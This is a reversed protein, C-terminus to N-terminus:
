EGEQSLLARGRAIDKALGFSSHAPLSLPATLLLSALRFARRVQRRVGQGGIGIHTKRQGHVWKPHAGVKECKDEAYLGLDVTVVLIVVRTSFLGFVAARSSM